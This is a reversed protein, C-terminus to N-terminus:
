GLPAGDCVEPVLTLGCHGCHLSGAPPLPVGCRSCCTSLRTECHACFQWDPELQRRCERCARVLAAADIRPEGAISSPRGGDM